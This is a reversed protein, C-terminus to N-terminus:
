ARRAIRVRGRWGTLRAASGSCYGAVALLLAAAAWYADFCRVRTLFHGFGNM